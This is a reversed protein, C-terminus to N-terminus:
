DYISRTGWVKLARSSPNLRLSFYMLTALLRRAHTSLHVVIISPCTRVKWNALRALIREAQDDTLKIYRNGPLKGYYQNESESHLVSRVQSRMGAESELFAVLGVSVVCALSVAALFYKLKRMPHEGKTNRKRHNHHCCVPKLRKSVDLCTFAAKTFSSCSTGRM